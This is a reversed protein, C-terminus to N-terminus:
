VGGSFNILLSYEISLPISAPKQIPNALVARSIMGFTTDTLYTGVDARIADLNLVGSSPNWFRVSTIKDWTPSGVISASGKLVSSIFYGSASPTTFTITYHNSTDTLFRVNLSASGIFTKFGSLKFLDQSSYTSLSALSNDDTIKEIYNSTADGSGPVSLVNLGIRASSSPTSSAASATGYETFLNVQDFDFLTSGDVTINADINTAPYIAVERIEYQYPDVIEGFFVLSDNSGSLEFTGGTAATRGIEFGLVNNTILTSASNLTNPTSDIGYAICDVFNPIIGLLSKIIISRGASTLANKQEGILEGDIYFRYTGEISEINELYM